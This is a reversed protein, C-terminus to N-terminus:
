QLTKRSVILHELAARREALLQQTQEVLEKPAHNTFQANNLKSQLSAVYPELTSIEKDLRSREADVDIVDDLPVIATISGVTVSASVAYSANPQVYVNALAEVMLQDDDAIDETIVNLKEKAAIRYTARINRISTILQHLQSMHKELPEDIANADVIPWQSVMLFEGQKVMGTEHALLETIFPMVPHALALFTHLTQRRQTCHLESIKSMEVYWDAYEHWLFNYLKEAIMSFESREYHETLEQTLCNIRSLIWRDAISLTASLATTTGDPAKEAANKEDQMMVFRAVNWLKNVFNRSDQVKDEYFRADNGPSIGKILSLRLADTGYQGIVELPDIGNGLSKSFKRGQKDRLIGHIYVNRFPVEDLAYTSLLIMRVLWLRIIEHGMQMWATPHFTELDSTKEPWGLTSFTWSASSFWTDLTDPDQTWGEGDPQTASAVVESGRYWVPIRHGWWIQRSICWDRYNDIWNACVRSFRKPLVTVRQAPDGNLGTTIAEKMLQKLSKGRGPIEKDISVFWQEMPMPWVPDKFRDSLAINHSIEEEKLLLENDHLWQVFKARAETTTLGAYGGANDTMRGDAGIVQTMGIEQHRQYLEFDTQSHAPTVGVAGTGYKPDVTDDAIVHITLPQKAGVDVTYTKGVYQTYRADDPHVAVATDGLKTEPQVTAIPIPFEKSYTFTYLTTKREEHELEDDSATSQGAVSWNVVRYGRYILGDNYMRIFLENVAASRTDDFTYALRSWDASTGMKRIQSLITAKSQEAYERILKLLGERGYHQRPNEIGENHLKDEVRAQTAVASHDTGPVLLAHKGRMRQYRIHTDMITNELAHGLHLVGTVNPPPMMVAYPEKPHSPSEGTRDGPLNDPNFFGSEEWQRYIDDEHQQPNYSKDMAISYQLVTNKSGPTEKKNWGAAYVKIVGSQRLM